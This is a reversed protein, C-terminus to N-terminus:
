CCKRRNVPPDIIFDMPQKNIDTYIYYKNDVEAVFGGKTFFVAKGYFTVAAREGCSCLCFLLAAVYFLCIFKRM